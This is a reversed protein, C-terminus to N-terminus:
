SIREIFSVFRIYIQEPAKVLYVWSDHKDKSSSSGGSAITDYNGIHFATKAYNRGLAVRCSLIYGYSNGMKFAYSSAISSHPTLYIGPGYSGSASPKLTAGLISVLNQAPTGHFLWIDYGGFKKKMQDFNWRRNASGGASAQNNRLIWIEKLNWYPNNGATKIIEDYVGAYRKDTKELPHIIIGLKQLQKIEESM